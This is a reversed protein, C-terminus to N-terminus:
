GGNLVEKMLKAGDEMANIIKPNNIDPMEEQKVEKFKKTVIKFKLDYERVNFVNGRNGQASKIV